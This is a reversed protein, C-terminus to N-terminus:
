VFSMESFDADNWNFSMAIEYNDNVKTLSNTFMQPPEYDTTSIACDGVTTEV